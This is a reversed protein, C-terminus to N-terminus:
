RAETQDKPLVGKALYDVYPTRWDAEAEVAKLLQDIEIVEADAPIPDAGAGRCEEAPDEGAADIGTTPVSPTLQNNAFVGQPVPDRASAMKGLADAAENLKDELKRVEECYRSM